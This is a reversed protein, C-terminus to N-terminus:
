FPLDDQSQYEEINLFEKEFMKRLSSQLEQLMTYLVWAENILKSQRKAKACNM